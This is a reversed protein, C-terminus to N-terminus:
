RLVVGDPHFAFRLVNRRGFKGDLILEALDTRATLYSHASSYVCFKYYGPKVSLSNVVLNQGYHDRLDRINIGSSWGEPMIVPAQDLNALRKSYQYTVYTGFGIVESYGAGRHMAELRLDIDLTGERRVDLLTSLDDIATFDQSLVQRGSNRIVRTEKDGAVFLKMSKCDNKINISLKKNKKFYLNQYKDYIRPYIYVVISSVLASIVVFFAIIIRYKYFEKIADKMM